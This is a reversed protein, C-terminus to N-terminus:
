LDVFVCCSQFDVYSSLLGFMKLVLYLKFVSLIKLLVKNNKIKFCKFSTRKAIQNRRSNKFFVKKTDNKNSILKYATNKKVIM